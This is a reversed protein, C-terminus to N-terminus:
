PRTDRQVRYFVRSSDPNPDTFILQGDQETRVADTVEQWSGEALTASKWLIFDHGPQAPMTLSIKNDEHKINDVRLLAPNYPNLTESLNIVYTTISEAPLSQVQTHDAVTIAAHPNRLFGLPSITSQMTRFGTVSSVPLGNLRLSIDAASTSTNLAILTLKKGTPDIYGSVRINTDTGTRIVQFRQDGRSIATSYHMVGWYTNKVIYDGNDISIMHTRPSTSDGWILKWFIYASADAEVFTNHIVHATDLWDHTDSTNSYESMWSRRGGHLLNEARVQNFRSILSDIAAHTTPNTTSIGPIGYNHYANIGLYTRSRLAVAENLFASKSASEPGVMIPMNPRDKIQAHVADLAEAYGPLRKDTREAPDFECIEHNTTWGPENQISIYDPVWGLNDLLDVWYQALDAYRYNGNADKALTGEYKGTVTNLVGTLSNNSKLSVPPTWSSFLIKIDRDGKKAMDYFIKTNNHNTGTSTPINSPSKNTPWNTPFYWNKLRIIDLGLDDFILKEVEARKTATLSLMRSSYWTLAGGVGDMVQNRVSPNPGIGIGTGDDNTVVSIDDLWVTGVGPHQIKIQPSTVTTTHNWTYFTWATSLTFNLSTSGMLFRVRTGATEARARFRISTARGIGLDTFTPGLTQVRWDAAPDIATTVAKLANAGKYPMGTELSYTAQAIGSRNHSWGGSTLGSEFGGNTVLNQGPLLSSGMVFCAILLNHLLVKSIM